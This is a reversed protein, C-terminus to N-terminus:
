RKEIVGCAVRDGSNGAPESVYDDQNAHVVFSTGGPKFLSAQGEGLTVQHTITEFGGKGSENVLFNPLDGAHMPAADIGHQGGSPNFHGGAAAFNPSCAGNEHIHVAHWGPKLGDLEGHILVGQPFQTLTVTGLAKGQADSIAARAQPQGPQQASASGQFAAMALIAAVAAAPITRRM